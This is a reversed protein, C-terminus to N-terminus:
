LCELTHAALHWGYEKETPVYGTYTRTKPHNLTLMWYFVCQPLQPKTTLMWYFVCQPLQPKTTGKCRLLAGLSCSNRNHCFFLEHIQLGSVLRAAQRQLRVQFLNTCTIGGVVVPALLETGGTIRLTVKCRYTDTM